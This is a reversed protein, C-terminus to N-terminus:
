SMLFSELIGVLTDVSRGQELWERPTKARGDIRADDQPTNMFGLISAPHMDDEFASTLEQLAPLVPQSALGTFQWGPYRLEGNAVFAFLDGEFAVLGDHELGLLSAAHRPTTAEAIASQETRRELRRLDGRAIRARSDDLQAQTISRSSVFFAAQEATLQQAPPSPSQRKRLGFDFGRAHVIVRGM